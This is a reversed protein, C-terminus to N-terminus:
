LMEKIVASQSQYKVLVRKRVFSMCSVKELEVLDNEVLLGCIYEDTLIPSRLAIILEKLGKFFSLNNHIFIYEPVRTGSLM